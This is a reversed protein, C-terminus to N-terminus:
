QIGLINTGEAKDGWVMGHLKVIGIKAIMQKLCKLIQEALDGLDFCDLIMHWKKGETISLKFISMQWKMSKQIM